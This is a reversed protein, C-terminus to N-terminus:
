KEATLYSNVLALRLGWECQFNWEFQDFNTIKKDRTWEEMFRSGQHDDMKYMLSVTNMLHGEKNGKTIAFPIFFGREPYKSNAYGTVPQYNLSQWKKMHFTRDGLNYSKVGFSLAKKAGDGGVLRTFMSFDIATNQTRTHMATEHDLYLETGLYGCYENMARERDLSRIMQESQAYDWTVYTQIIGRNEVSRQLGETTRIPGAGAPQDPAVLSNSQEGLLLTYETDISLRDAVDKIGKQFYYKSYGGGKKKVRVEAENAM